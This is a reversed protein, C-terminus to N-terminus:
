ADNQVNRKWDSVDQDFFRGQASIEPLSAFIFARGKRSFARM